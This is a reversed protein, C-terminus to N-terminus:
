RRARGTAEGEESAGGGVAPRKSLQQGQPDAAGDPAPRAVRLRLRLPGQRVPPPGVRPQRPRRDVRGQQEGRRRPGDRQLRRRLVPVADRGAQAARAPPDRRRAAQQGARRDPVRGHVRRVVRLELQGDAPRPRVRDEDRLGQRQPHDGRQEPGRRVRPRLPRVPHLGPPRGRDGALLRRGPARRRAATGASGLPQGFPCSRPRLSGGARAVFQGGPAAAEAGDAPRGAAARDADGPAGRDRPEHHHGEHGARLSARVRGRARARRRRGRVHPVGGRTQLAPRPVAGPDGRRRLAGRGM